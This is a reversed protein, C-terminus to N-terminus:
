HFEAVSGFPSRALLVPAYQKIQVIELFDNQDSGGLRM